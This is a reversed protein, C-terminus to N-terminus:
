RASRGSRGVHIKLHAAIVKGVIIKSLERSWAKLPPYRKNASVFWLDKGKKEVIKVAIGHVDDDMVVAYIAGNQFSLLDRGKACDVFCVAGRPIEPEMSDATNLLRIAVVRDSAHADRLEKEGISVFEIPEGVIRGNPGASAHEYPPVNRAPAHDPLSSPPSPAVSIADEGMPLGFAVRRLRDKEIEPLKLNEVVKDITEPLINVFGKEWKTLMSADIGLLKAFSRNSEPKGKNNHRRYKNIENYFDITKVIVEFVLFQISL